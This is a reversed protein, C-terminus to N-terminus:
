FPVFDGFKKLEALLLNRNKFWFIRTDISQKELVNDIKQNLIRRDRHNKPNQYYFEFNSLDTIKNNMQLTYKDNKYKLISQNYIYETVNYGDKLAINKLNNTFFKKIYPRYDIGTHNSVFQMVYKPYLLKKGNKTYTFENKAIEEMHDIIWQKGIGISHHIFPSEVGLNERLQKIQKQPISKTIYKTIYNIGGAVLVGVDCFGYKWLKRTYKIVQSDTLGFFAIHYHPRDTSDGYEGCYLIKFPTVDNHYEMQRRMNKIFKQVHEKKLTVYGKDNIPLYNDQYTLTVFSAGYNDKYKYLLEKECLFTLQSQKTKLCPLCHGCSVNTVKETYDTKIHVQIPTICSM